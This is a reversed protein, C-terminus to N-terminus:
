SGNGFRKENEARVHDYAKQLDLGLLFAINLLYVFVDTTEMMLRYRTNADRIDLSGRDIKKVLNALEGAEGCLSLTHHVVNHSNPFWRLSDDNCQKALAFM